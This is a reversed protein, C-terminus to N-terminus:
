TVKTWVTEFKIQQRCFNGIAPVINVENEVVRKSIKFIGYQTKRARKAILKETNKLRLDRPSPVM